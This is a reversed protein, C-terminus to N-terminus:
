VSFYYIVSINDVQLDFATYGYVMDPEYSTFIVDDVGRLVSGYTIDSPIQQQPDSGFGKWLEPFDEQIPIDIEFTTWDRKYLEGATAYVAADAKSNKLQVLLSRSVESGLFAITNVKVDISMIVKTCHFFNGGFSYDEGTNKLIFGWSEPNWLHLNAGPNGGDVIKDSHWAHWGETGDDFTVTHTHNFSKPCAHFNCDNSPNCSVDSGDACEKVDTPCVYEKPCPDFKCDNDPNRIVDSGDPCIKIDYSCDDEINKRMSDLEDEINEIKNLIDVPCLPFNCDNSPNRSVYSGDACEKVDDDCATEEPCLDFACNQDPNHNVYSGDDCEKVDTSCAYEQPCPDFECDKSPNRSMSSGDDCEKVDTPCVYEQASKKGM